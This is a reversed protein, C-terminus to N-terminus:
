AALGAFLDGPFLRALRSSLWGSVESSLISLIWILVDQLGGGFLKCERQLRNM